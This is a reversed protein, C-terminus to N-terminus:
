LRRGRVGVTIGHHLVVGVRKQTRLYESPLFLLYLTETLMRYMGLLCSDYLSQSLLMRSSLHQFFASKAGDRM